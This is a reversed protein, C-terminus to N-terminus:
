SGSRGWFLLSDLLIGERHGCGRGTVGQTKAKAAPGEPRLASWAEHLRSGGPVRSDGELVLLGGAAGGELGWEDAGRPGGTHGRRKEMGVLKRLPRILARTELM